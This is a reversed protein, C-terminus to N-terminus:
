AVRREILGVGPRLMGNEDLRDPNGVCVVTVNPFESRLEGIAEISYFATAVILKDAGTKELAYRVLSIATCGTALVTKGVIVNQIPPLVAPFSIERVPASLVDQGRYRGFDIFGLYANGIACRLAYGLTNSDQKTTVVLNWSEPFTVAEISDGMPTVIPSSEIPLIEAIARGLEFGTAMLADTVEKPSSNRDRIRGSLLDAYTSKLRIISRGSPVIIM